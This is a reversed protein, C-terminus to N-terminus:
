RRARRWGARRAAAESCFWREGKQPNIRTRDYHEQGPLHYIRRGGSSINGKIACDAPAARVPRQRAARHEAPSQMRSAHLGRNRVAARKEDLDYDMSYRRYAFALGETVLVSGVDAGLADCRAVIRRYRDTTLATCRAKRGQYRRRVQDTAWKGCAWVEGSARRCTQDLEPADIGFLRVRQGGVDWTDADIVRVIGTPGQPGAVAAVSLSALVFVACIRLM